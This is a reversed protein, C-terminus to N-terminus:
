NVTEPCAMLFLAKNVLLAPAWGQEGVNSLTLELIIDPRVM